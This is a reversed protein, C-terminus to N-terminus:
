QFCALGTGTTWEFKIPEVVTLTENVYFDPIDIWITAKSITEPIPALTIRFVDDKGKWASWEGWAMDINRYMGTGRIEDLPGYQVEPIGYYESERESHFVGTAIGVIRMDHSAKTSDDVVQVDASVFRFSYGERLRVIVTYPWIELVVGESVERQFLAFRHGCAGVSLREARKVDPAYFESSVTCGGLVFITLIAFREIM